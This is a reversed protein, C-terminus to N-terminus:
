IGALNSAIIKLVQAISCVSRPEAKEKERPVEEKRKTRIYFHSAAM